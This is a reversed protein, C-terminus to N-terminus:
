FCSLSCSIYRGWCVYNLKLNLKTAVMWKFFFPPVNVEPAKGWVQPHFKCGEQVGGGLLNNMNCGERLIGTDAPPSPSPFPSPFPSPSCLLDSRFVITPQMLPCVSPVLSPLPQWLTRKAAQSFGSSGLALCLLPLPRSTACAKSFPYNFVSLVNSAANMAHLISSPVRAKYPYDAETNIGGNDTVYSVASLRDGGSCGRNGYLVSLIISTHLTHDDHSPPTCHTIMMHHLHADHSPPTCHTIMMHHLHAIYSWWTISTHLTHDDHSPPTCHTIMMHHLHAIHSWWTISTHLTHDDHSPPTCHTIMHLRALAVYLM